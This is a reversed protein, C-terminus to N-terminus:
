RLAIGTVVTGSNTEMMILEQGGRVVVVNFNESGPLGSLSVSTTGMCNSGISYTGILTGTLGTLLVGSVERIGDLHISGLSVSPRLVPSGFQFGYTGKVGANSCIASGQAIAFGPLISGQKGALELQAGGSVVVISFKYTKGQVELLGGGTCNSLINYSGTAPVHNVIAGATSTTVIGSLLGTGNATIQGSLAFAMQTTGIIRTGNLAFGYHGIVTANTCSAWAASGLCLMVGLWVLRLMQTSM